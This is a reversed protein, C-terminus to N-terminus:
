KMKFSLNKIQLIRHWPFLIEVVQTKDIDSLVNIFDEKNNIFLGKVKVFNEEIVPPELTLFYKTSKGDVLDILYPPKTASIVSPLVISTQNVAIDTM